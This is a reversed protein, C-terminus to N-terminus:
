RKRDKRAQKFCAFCDRFVQLKYSTKKGQLECRTDKKTNQKKVRLEFGTVQSKQIKEQNEEVPRSTPQFVM